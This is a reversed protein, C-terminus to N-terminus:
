YATSVSVYRTKQQVPPLNMQDNPDVVRTTSSTSYNCPIGGSARVFEERKGREKGRKGKEFIGSWMCLVHAM